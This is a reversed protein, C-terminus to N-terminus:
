NKFGMKAMQLLDYNGLLPEDMPKFVASDLPNEGVTKALAQLLVLRHPKGNTITLSSLYQNFISM